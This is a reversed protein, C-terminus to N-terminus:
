GQYRRCDWLPCQAPLSIRISGFPAHRTAQARLILDILFVVRGPAATLVLARNWQRPSEDPPFRPCLFDPARHLALIASPWRCSHHLQWCRSDDLPLPSTASRRSMFFLLTALIDGCNAATSRSVIKCRAMASYMPVALEETHTDTHTHTHTGKEGTAPRFRICQPLPLFLRPLSPCPGIHTQAQQAGAKRRSIPFSQTTFPRFLTHTVSLFLM